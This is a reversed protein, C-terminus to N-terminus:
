RIEKFFERRMIAGGRIQAVRHYYKLLHEVVARSGGSGCTFYDDIGGEVGESGLPERCRGGTRNRPPPVEVLRQDEVVETRNM